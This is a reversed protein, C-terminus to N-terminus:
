QIGNNDNTQELVKKFVVDSKEKVNYLGDM